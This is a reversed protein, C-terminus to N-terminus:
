KVITVHGIYQHKEGVKDKINIIYVYVDQPCIEDGGKVTGKWHENIDETRFILNGWRNYIQMEFKDVNEGKVYFEDNLGSGNPSFASPIYLTYDPEIILCHEITDACAPTNTVMLTVCYTGVDTYSHDPSSAFSTNTTPNLLSDGFNWYWTTANTSMDTFTIQPYNISAPQPGYTFEANPMASVAIMDTVTATSVCGFNTTDSLTISFLETPVTGSSFCHSPNQNDDTTGDDFSWHSGVITSGAGVTSM